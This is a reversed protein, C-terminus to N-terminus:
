EKRNLYKQIMLSLVNAHHEGLTEQLQDDRTFEESFQVIADPSIKNIQELTPQLIPEIAQPDLSQASHYLYERFYRVSDSGAVETAIQMNKGALYQHIQIFLSFNHVQQYVFFINRISEDITFGAKQMDWYLVDANANLQRPLGM